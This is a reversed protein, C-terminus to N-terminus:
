KEDTIKPEEPEGMDERAKKMAGDLEEKIPEYFEEGSM